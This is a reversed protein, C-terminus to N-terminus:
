NGQRDAARSQQQEHSSEKLFPWWVADLDNMVERVEQPPVNVGGVLLTLIRTARQTTREVHAVWEKPNPVSRLAETCEHSRSASFEELHYKAKRLPEVINEFTSLNIFGKMTDFRRIASSLLDAVVQWWLPVPETYEGSAVLEDLTPKEAQFKERIAKHGERQEKTFQHRKEPLPPLGNEQRARNVRESFLTPKGERRRNGEALLAEALDYAWPVVKEASLNTGHTQVLGGLIEAAVVDAAFMSVAKM